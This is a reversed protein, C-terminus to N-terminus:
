IDLGSVRRTVARSSVCDASEKVEEDNNRDQHIDTSNEMQVTVSSSPSRTEDVLACFLCLQSLQITFQVTTGSCIDQVAAFLVLADCACTQQM